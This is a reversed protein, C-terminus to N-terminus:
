MLPIATLVMDDGNAHCNVCGMVGNGAAVVKTPDTPSTIEYWFWGKGADTQDQTKVAVAWGALEQNESFMEKVLASGAPHTKNGAKMSEAIRDNMFVRVPLDIRTHPGESPHAKSEQAAFAKYTGSQLYQLLQSLDVPVESDVSSPTPATAKWRDDAKSQPMGTSTEKKVATGREAAAEPEGSGYGKAARLVPYYQTFVFDDRASQEHCQNCSATEFPKVADKLLSGEPNTFSFYAWNGPEDPFHKKSKITAELGIFEGMFYGKGSVARKKGVSVLEKILITGDRWTGTKKWHDYSQPDIYVNHFEPFAAKGDNLENPTLPTGVYVWSRYTDPRALQGEADISFYSDPLANASGAFSFALAVSLALLAKTSNSGFGTKCSHITKM